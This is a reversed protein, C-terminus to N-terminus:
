RVKGEVLLLLTVLIGSGMLANAPVEKRNLRGLFSPPLGDRAAAWPIQGQMLVWGSLAGFIAAIAGLAIVSGGWPGVM